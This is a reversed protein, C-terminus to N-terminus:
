GKWTIRSLASSLDDEYQRQLMSRAEDSTGRWTDDVLQLPDADPLEALAWVAEVLDSVDSNFGLAPSGVAGNRLLWGRMYHEVQRPTGVRNGHAEIAWDRAVHVATVVAADREIGIIVECTEEATGNILMLPGNPHM